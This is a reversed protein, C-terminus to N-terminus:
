RGNTVFALGHSRMAVWHVSPWPWCCRPALLLFAIAYLYISITDKKTVNWTVGVENISEYEEFNNSVIYDEVIIKAKEINASIKILDYSSNLSNRRDIEKKLIRENEATKIFFKAHDLFLNGWLSTNISNEELLENIKIELEDTELTQKETESIIYAEAFALDYLTAFLFNNDKSILAANYRRKAENLIGSSVNADLIVDEVESIRTNVKSIFEESYILKKQNKSKKAENIFDKAADIWGIASVYDYVKKFAIRKEEGSLSDNTPSNIKSLADEAYAIRQQAGILWEYRDTSTFDLEKKMNTIEITLSDIKSNLITSELSLLTPTKAIEKITEAYVRANFAENASSYLYNKDLYTQANQINKSIDLNILERFEDVFTQDLTTNELEKKAQELENKAQTIYNASIERMPALIKKNKIEEPIFQYQANNTDVVIENINMYAYKIVDEITVVEVIKIGLTEPGYSLLNVLKKEDNENVEANATGQPIMLLKIGKEKAAQAKYGVGGVAGISGDTRITGTIGIEPNLKKETLLSYALLTMAAGASPGDVESADAKIDFIYSYNGRKTKSQQEAIDMAFNGTTQTDKGVLSNSTIFAVEGNGPITYLYLDAVLGINDSTIAFIKTNGSSSIAYGYSIILISLILIFAFNIQKKIKIQKKIM